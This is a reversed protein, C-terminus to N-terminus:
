KPIAEKKDNVLCAIAGRDGKPLIPDLNAKHQVETQPRTPYLVDAHIYRETERKRETHIYIYTYIYTYIYIHNRGPGRGGARHYPPPEKSVFLELLITM